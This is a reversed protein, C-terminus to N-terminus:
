SASFLKYSFYQEKITVGAQSSYNWFSETLLIFFFSANEDHLKYYGQFFKCWVFFM